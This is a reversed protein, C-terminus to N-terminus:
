TKRFQSTKLKHLRAWVQLVDFQLCACNKRSWSLLEFTRRDYNKLIELIIKRKIFWAYFFKPAVGCMGGNLFITCLKLVRWITNVRILLILHPKGLILPNKVWGTYYDIYSTWTRLILTSTLIFRTIFPRHRQDEIYLKGPRTLKLIVM